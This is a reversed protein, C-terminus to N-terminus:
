RAYLMEESQLALPMNTGIYKQVCYTIGIAIAVLVISKIVAKTKSQEESQKINVFVDNVVKRNNQKLKHKNMKKWEKKPKPKKM